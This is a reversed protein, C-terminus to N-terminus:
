EMLRISLQSNQLCVVKINQNPAQYAYIDKDKYTVYSLEYGEPAAPLYRDNVLTYVENGIKISNEEAQVEGITINGGAHAVSLQVKELRYIKYGSTQLKGTGDAIATFNYSYSNNGTGIIEIIGTNEGGNYQLISTPYELFIDYEGLYEANITVTATVTDGIKVETPWMALTISVDEAYSDFKTGFVGFMFCIILCFSIALSIFKNTKIRSM